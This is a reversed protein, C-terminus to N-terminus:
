AKVRAGGPWRVIKDDGWREVAESKSRHLWLIVSNRCNRTNRLFSHYSYPTCEFVLLSNNIPPVALAPNDIPQAINDYLGTEGGEGPAWKPNSLYFLMAVARVTERAPRNPVTTSGNWYNCINPDSVNPWGQVSDDIFWGPNFDNHIRGFDSGPLHHHLGGNIDGTANVRAIGALLDHWAQSIFMRLPDELHKTFAYSYADYGRISRAFRTSDQNESLGRDLISLFAQELNEYFVPDFVDSARIHPFPNTCRIWRRNSICRRLDSESSM